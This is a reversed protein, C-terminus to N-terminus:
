KIEYRENDITASSFGFPVHFIQDNVQDINSLTYWLHVVNIEIFNTAMLWALIVFREMLFEMM